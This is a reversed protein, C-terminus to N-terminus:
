GRSLAVLLMGTFYLISNLRLIGDSKESHAENYALAYDSLMFLILGCSAIVEKYSPNYFLLVLALSGQLTVSSLYYFGFKRKVAGVKWKKTVYSVTLMIIFFLILGFLVLFFVEINRQVLYVIEGLWFILNAIWFLIGGVYLYKILIVDGLWCFILALMVISDVPDNWLQKTIFKVLAFSLYLSALIIKSLAHKLSPRDTEVIVYFIFVALYVILFVLKPDM